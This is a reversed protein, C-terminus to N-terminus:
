DYSQLTGGNYQLDFNSNVAYLVTGGHSVRIGVPFYFSDLPPATGDGTDYCGSDAVLGILLLPLIAASRQWGRLFGM